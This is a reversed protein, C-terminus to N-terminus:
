ISRDLYRPDWYCCYCTILVIRRNVCLSWRMIFQCLTVNTSESPATTPADRLFQIAPNTSKYSHIRSNKSKITQRVRRRWGSPTVSWNLKKIPQLKFPKIKQMWFQDSLFTGNNIIFSCHLKITLYSRYDDRKYIQEILNITIKRLYGSKDAIIICHFIEKARLFSAFKRDEVYTIPPPTIIQMCSKQTPRLHSSHHIRQISSSKNVGPPWM